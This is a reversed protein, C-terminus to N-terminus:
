SVGKQIRSLVPYFDCEVASGDANHITLVGYEDVSAALVAKQGDGKDGKPGPEGPKGRRGQVSMLQWGDGPCEGPDDHRAVFSAGNFAVVDLEEYVEATEYTGRIRFHKASRGDAGASAIVTWDAHPPARGTDSRAQYTSGAFTVVEGQYYVREVWPEVIPLRGPPGEKAPPLAAVAENVMARIVAPDADSGREGDRPAPIARVAEAVLGSIRAQISEMDPKIPAPLEIGAVAEAVMSRIVDPDADKGPQGEQPVPLAAVAQSVMVSLSAEIAAMDPKPLELGSVAEDVLARVLAPDADKGPDGDRPPPIAKVANAVAADIVPRVDDLTVSQGDRVQGLRDSIRGEWEREVVLGRAQMEAMNARMESAVANMQALSAAVKANLEREIRAVVAGLEAALADICQQM